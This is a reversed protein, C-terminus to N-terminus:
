LCVVVVVVSPRLVTAYTRGNTRDALLLSIQPFEKRDIQQISDTCLVKLGNKL